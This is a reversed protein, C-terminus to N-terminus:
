EIVEDARALLSPQITLGIAKATKLNFVLRFKTPMQVPLDGAKEGRLIRDVYEATKRFSDDFDHGYCVLGGAMVSAATAYHAPLRHRLALAIILEENAWTIAHPAVILGRNESTAFSSVAREIEAADHIGGATVEVGFRPAAEQLSRWFAQHIPTEPHFIMMVRTLHPATEKLMELWKGGIPGDTGAFGTTNGGPHALSAVFGDGVPDGVGVFVVPVNGAMPKLLALALNSFVMFVDPSFALLEAVVPRMEAEGGIWWRVDVRANRGQSWGLQELRRLFTALSTKGLETEASGMLVGIRRVREGQQAPAAV